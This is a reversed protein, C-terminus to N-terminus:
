KDNKTEQGQNIGSARSIQRQEEISMAADLIDDVLRCVDNRPLVVCSQAKYSEPLLRAHWKLLAAHSHDIREDNDM